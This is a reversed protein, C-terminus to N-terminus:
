CSRRPTRMRTRRRTRRRRRRRRSSSSRGSSSSSGTRGRYSMRRKFGKWEKRKCSRSRHANRRSKCSRRQMMWSSRSMCQCQSMRRRGTCSSANRGRGRGCSRRSINWRRQSRCRDQIMSTQSRRGRRSWGSKWCTRSGHCKRRHRVPLRHGRRRQRRLQLAGEGGDRERQLQCWVPHTQSRRGPPPRQWCLQLPAPGRSSSLSCRRHPRRQQRPPMRRCRPRQSSPPQMGASRGGGLARTTVPM